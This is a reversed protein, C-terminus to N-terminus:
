HLVAVTLTGCSVLKMQVFSGIIIIYCKNASTCTM